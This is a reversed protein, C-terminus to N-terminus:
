YSYNKGLQKYTKEQDNKPWNLFNGWVILTKILIKMPNLTNFYIQKALVIFLISIINKIFLTFCHRDPKVLNLKYSSVLQNIEAKGSFIDPSMMGHNCAINKSAPNDEVGKKKKFHAHTPLDKKSYKNQNKIPM